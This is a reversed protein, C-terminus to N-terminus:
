LQSEFVRWDRKDGRYDVKVERIVGAVAHEDRLMLDPLPEGKFLSRHYARVLARTAVGPGTKLWMSLNPSNMCNGLLVRICEELIPHHSVAGFFGARIPGSGSLFFVGARSTLVVEDFADLSIIQDDADVYYGGYAAVAHWRFFDSEESPHRLSTFTTECDAGYYDRLFSAARDRDYLQVDFRGLAKHYEVNELIAEPPTKDWYMYLRNPIKSNLTPAEGGYSLVSKALRLYLWDPEAGTAFSECAPGLVKLKAIISCKNLEGSLVLFYDLCGKDLEGLKSLDEQSAKDGAKMGAILKALLAHKSEPNIMYSQHYFHVATRFDGKSECNNAIAINQAFNNQGWEDFVRLSPADAALALRIATEDMM